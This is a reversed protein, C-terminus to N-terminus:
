GIRFKRLSDQRAQKSVSAVNVEFSSLLASLGQIREEHTGTELINVIVETFTARQEDKEEYTTPEGYAYNFYAEGLTEGFKTIANHRLSSNEREKAVHFEEIDKLRTM